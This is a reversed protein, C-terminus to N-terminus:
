KAGGFLPNEPLDLFHIKPCDDDVFQRNAILLSEYLNIVHGYAFGPGNSSECPTATLVRPYFGKPDLGEIRYPISTPGAANHLWDRLQSLYDPWAATDATIGYQYLGAHSPALPEAANLPRSLAAKSM